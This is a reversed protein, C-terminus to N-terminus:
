PYSSLLASIRARSPNAIYLTKVRAHQGRFIAVSSRPTGFLEAVFEILEDNAHGKSPQSNLGIVLGRPERRLIRRHTSGPKAVVQVKIFGEGSVLWPEATIARAASM